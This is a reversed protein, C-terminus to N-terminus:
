FSLSEFHQQFRYIRSLQDSMDLPNQLSWPKGRWQLLYSTFCNPIYLSLARPPNQDLVIRAPYWAIGSLGQYGQSSWGRSGEILSWKSDDFASNAWGLKGDPDDGVQFRWKGDLSVVAQRDKDLSFAGTRTESTHSQANLSALVAMSLAFAMSLRTKRNRSANVFPPV